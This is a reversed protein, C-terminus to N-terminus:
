SSPINVHSPTDPGRTIRASGRPPLCAGGVMGYFSSATSVPVTGLDVTGVRGRITTPLASSCDIGCGVRVPSEDVSSGLLSTDVSSYSNAYTRDRRGRSATPVPLSCSNETRGLLM